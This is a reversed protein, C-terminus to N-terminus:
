SLRYSIVLDLTIQNSAFRSSRWRSEVGVFVLVLSTCPNILQEIGLNQLTQSCSLFSPPICARCHPKFSLYFPNSRRQQVSPTMKKKRLTRVLVRILGEEFLRGGQTRHAYGYAEQRAVRVARLHHRDRVRTPLSEDQSSARDHHRGM